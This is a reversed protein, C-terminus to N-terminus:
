SRVTLFAFTTWRLQSRCISKKITLDQPLHVLHCESMIHGQVGYIEYVNVKCHVGSLASGQPTPQLRDVKLFLVDVKSALMIFVNMEHRGGRKPQGRESGRHYNNSAVDEFLQNAKDIPKAM